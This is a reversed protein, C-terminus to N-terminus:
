GKQKRRRVMALAAVTAGFLAVSGPEPVNNSGEVANTLSMEYAQGQAAFSANLFAEVSGLTASGGFWFSGTNFGDTSARTSGPLANVVNCCYTILLSYNGDALNQTLHSFLSGNSDDNTVLHNGAGDFLAITPDRYGNTYLFDVTNNGGVNLQVVDYGHENFTGSIVAANAAGLSALLFLAATINKLINM